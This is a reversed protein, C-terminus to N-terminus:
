VRRVRDRLVQLRAEALGKLADLAYFPDTGEVTISASINGHLAASLPDYSQRYGALFGGCFADGAGMPDILNSPYAPIDWRSHSASDYLYQGREGRKIVIIECSFASLAEAMEWLDSARGQFLSRIKDESTLFATIGNLLAPMDDWFAPNMYGKSPDLTITTIHGQRLVSPLLSHSLFDLPCLHAATADLYDSPIDSLRLTLSSFRSRSDIDPSAYSYDLLSKPFPVGLKNFVVLPNDMQVTDMDLYATFLRLDITQPLVHIGRRDVGKRSIQDLWDQPFDNGVRGILGIGSEWLGLGSAGYVLNGGLTDLRPKKGPMLIFSRNLQGAVLYQLLPTANM